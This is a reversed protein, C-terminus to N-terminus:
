PQMKGLTVLMQMHMLRHLMLMEVNMVRMVLMFMIAIDTRLWMRMRMPVRAQFVPMHM